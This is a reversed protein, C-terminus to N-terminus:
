LSTTPMNLPHLNRKPMYPTLLDVFVRKKEVLDAPSIIMDQYDPDEPNYDNHDKDYMIDFALELDELPIYEEPLVGSQENFDTFDDLYHLVEDPFHSSTKYASLFHPLAPFRQQGDVIRSLLTNTDIENNRNMLTCVFAFLPAFRYTGHDRYRIFVAADTYTFFGRKETLTYYLQYM